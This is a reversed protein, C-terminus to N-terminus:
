ASATKDVSAGSFEAIEHDCVEDDHRQVRPHPYFSYGATSPDVILMHELDM